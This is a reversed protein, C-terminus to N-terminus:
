QDVFNSKVKQKKMVYIQRESDPNLEEEESGGFQNEIAFGSKEILEQMKEQFYQRLVIKKEKVKENESFYEITYTSRQSANDYSSKITTEYEKDKNKNKFPLNDYPKTLGQDLKEQIPNQLDVILRGNKSLSKHCSSLFSSVDRDELLQQIANSASFILDFSGITNKCDEVEFKLDHLSMDKVKKKAKEIMTPSLDRGEVNIGSLALPITIRGTGCAVELVRGRM